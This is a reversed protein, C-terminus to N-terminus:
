LEFEETPPTFNATYRVGHSIRLDQLYIGGYNGLSGGNAADAETGLLFVCNGLPGLSTEAASYTQTGDVYFKVNSADYTFAFHYWTNDTITGTPTQETANVYLKWANANQGILLENSGASKNNIGVITTFGSPTSHWYVWGEITFPSATSGFTSLVSDKRIYDNVGDFYIASSTTFKRQTTSSATGNYLDLNNAAAADYINADSKNNMLLETNTIHGLPATPPTFAATYVASRTYRFDAISGTLPQTPSTRGNYGLRFDTSYLNRTYSSPGGVVKGDVYFTM